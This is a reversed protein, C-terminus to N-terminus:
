LGQDASQHRGTVPDCLRFSDGAVKSAKDLERRANNVICINEGIARPSFRNPRGFERGGFTALDDRVLAAICWSGNKIRFSM